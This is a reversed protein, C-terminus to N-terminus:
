RLARPAIVHQRRRNADHHARRRLVHPAREVREREQDLLDEAFIRLAAPEVAEDSPARRPGFPRPPIAITVAQEVLSEVTREELRGDPFFACARHSDVGGLEPAEKRADIALLFPSHFSSTLDSITILPRLAWRPTARPASRPGPASARRVSQ